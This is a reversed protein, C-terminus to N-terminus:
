KVRVYYAQFGSCGEASRADIAIQVRGPDSIPPALHVSVSLDGNTMPTATVDVPKGNIKVTLSGPEADSAVFSFDGLSDVESDSRPSESFFKPEACSASGGGSGYSWADFPIVLVSSAVVLLLLSKM